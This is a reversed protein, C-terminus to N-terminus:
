QSTCDTLSGVCQRRYIIHGKRINAVECYMNAMGFVEEEESRPASFKMLSKDWLEGLYEKNELNETIVLTHEWKLPISPDWLPFCLLPSLWRWSLLYAWSSSSDQSSPGSSLDSHLLGNQSSFHIFSVKAPEPVGCSPCLSCTPFPNAILLAACLIFYM